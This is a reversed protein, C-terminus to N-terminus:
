ALHGLLSAQMGGPTCRLLHFYPDAHPRPTLGLFNPASLGNAFSVPTRGPDIITADRADSLHDGGRQHGLDTRVHTTERGGLVQGGPHAHTGPVLLAGALAQASPRGLTVNPNSTHQRLRHPANGLMPAAVKVRLVVPEGPTSSLELGCHSNCVANKNDRVAQKPIVLGVRIQTGVVEFLPIRCTHFAVVDLSKLLQPVGDCQCWQSRLTV